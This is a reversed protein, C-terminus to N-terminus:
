REPACLDVTAMRDARMVQAARCRFGRPCSGDCLLSCFQRPAAGICLPAEEGCDEDATCPDGIEGDGYVPIPACVGQSMAMGFAQGEREEVEFTEYRGSCRFGAGCDGDAECGAVCQRRTPGADDQGGARDFAICFSTELPCDGDDACDVRAPGSGGAAASQEAASRAASSGGCAAVVLVIALILLRAMGRHYARLARLAREPRLRRLRITDKHM